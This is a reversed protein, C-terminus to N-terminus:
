ESLKTSSAVEGATGEGKLKEEMVAWTEYVLDACKVRAPLKSVSSLALADGLLEKEAQNLEEGHLLRHFAERAADLHSIPQGLASECFMSTSATCIACSRGTFSIDKVIGDATKVHLEIEDGCLPNAGEVSVEADDIEGYCRPHKSHDLLLDSFITEFGM